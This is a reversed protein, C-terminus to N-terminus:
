SVSLIRASSLIFKSVHCIESSSLRIAKQGSKDIFLENNTGNKTHKQIIIHVNAALINYFM